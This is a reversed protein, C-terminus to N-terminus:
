PTEEQKQNFSSTDQFQNQYLHRFRGRYFRPPRASLVMEFFAKRKEVPLQVAISHLRAIAKLQIQTQLSALAELKQRVALTDLAERSILDALARKQRRIREKMPRLEAELERHIQMLQGREEPTLFMEPGGRAFPPPEERGHHWRWERARGWQNYYVVTGITALNLVTLVVLAIVLLKVKM